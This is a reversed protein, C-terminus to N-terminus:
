QNLFNIILQFYEDHKTLSLIHGGCEFNHFKAGPFVSQLAASTDKGVFTDDEANIILVQNSHHELISSDISFHTHFDVLCDYHCLVVDKSFAQYLFQEYFPKIEESFDIGKLFLRKAITRVVKDPTFQIVRRFRKLRKPIKSDKVATGTNSLIVKSIKDPSEKLLFQAVLGGFSAGFVNVNNVSENDLVAIIGDILSKMRCILPYSPSIVTYKEELEMLFQFRMGPRRPGGPLLLIVKGALGGIIYKWEIGNVLITKEPHKLKFNEYQAMTSLNQANNM